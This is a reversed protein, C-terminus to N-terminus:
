DKLRFNYFFTLDEYVPEENRTFVDYEEAKGGLSNGYLYYGSTNRSNGWICHYYYGIDTINQAAGECYYLTWLEYSGDIVWEHGYGKGNYNESGMCMIPHGKWLEDYVTNTKFSESYKPTAYGLKEFTPEVGLTGCKIGDDSDYYANLYAPRGLMEFLYAWGEQNEVSLMADWNLTYDDVMLPRRYNSMILGTALPLSGVAAM